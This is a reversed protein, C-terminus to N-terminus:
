LMGGIFYHFVAGPIVLVIAMVVIILVTIGAASAIRDLLTEKEALIFNIVLLLMLFTLPGVVDFVYQEASGPVQGSKVYLYDGIFWSALGVCIICLNSIIQAKSLKNKLINLEM